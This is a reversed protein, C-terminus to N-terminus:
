ITISLYPTDTWQSASSDPNPKADKTIISRGQCHLCKLSLVAESADDVLKNAIVSTSGVTVVGKTNPAQLSILALDLDNQSLTHNCTTM